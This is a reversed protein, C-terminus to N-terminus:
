RRLQQDQELHIVALLETVLQKLGELEELLRFTDPTAESLEADVQALRVRIRCIQRKVAALM